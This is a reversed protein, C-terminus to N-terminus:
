HIIYSLLQQHPNRSLVGGGQLIEVLPLQVLEYLLLGRGEVQYEFIEHVEVLFVLKHFSVVPSLLEPILHQHEPLVVSQM